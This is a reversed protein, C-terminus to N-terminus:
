KRVKTRESEDNRLRLIFVNLTKLIPTGAAGHARHENRRKAKRENPTETRQSSSCALARRPQFVVGTVPSSLRLVLQPSTVHGRVVRLAPRAKAGARMDLRRGWGRLRQATQRRSERPLPASQCRAGLRGTLHPTSSLSVPAPLPRSHYPRPPRGCEHVAIDPATPM